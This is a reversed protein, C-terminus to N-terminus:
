KNDESTENTEDTSKESSDTIENLADEIDTKNKKFFELFYNFLSKIPTVKFINYFVQNLAFVAGSVGFLYKVNLTGICGLYIASAIVSVGVSIVVYVYHRANESLKGFANCYKMIGLIIIGGIAILSLQWGYSGFFTMLEEM